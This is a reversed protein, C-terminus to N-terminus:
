VSLISAYQWFFEPLCMMKLCNCFVYKKVLHDSPAKLDLFVRHCVFVRSPLSDTTMGIGLIGGLCMCAPVRVCAPWVLSNTPVAFLRAARPINFKHRHARKHTLWFSLALARRDFLSRCTLFIQAFVSLKQKFAPLRRAHQYNSGAPSAGVPTAAEFSNGGPLVLIRRFRDLQFM